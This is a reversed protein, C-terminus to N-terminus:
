TNRTFIRNSKIYMFEDIEFVLDTVALIPKETSEFRCSLPKSHGVSKTVCYVIQINKIRTNRVNGMRGAVHEQM